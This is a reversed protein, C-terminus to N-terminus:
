FNLNAVILQDKAFLPYICAFKQFIITQYLFDQKQDSDLIVFRRIIFFIYQWIDYLQYSM